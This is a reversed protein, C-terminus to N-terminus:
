SKQALSELIKTKNEIDSTIGNVSITAGSISDINRGVELKEDKGDYGIFQKLWGKATVEHGHSAQYNFVKVLVVEHKHNYFVMYDFYESDGGIPNASPASCGGARCSNVRGIYCHTIESNTNDSQINFFKGEMKSSVETPINMELLEPNILKCTKILTKHIAKHEYNVSSGGIAMASSAFLLTIFVLKKM